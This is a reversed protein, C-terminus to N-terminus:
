EVMKETKELCAAVAEIAEAANAGMADAGVEQWLLPDFRYPAGGVIIKVSSGAQELLQKVQKVRLASRLMLTSILIVKISDECVKQM